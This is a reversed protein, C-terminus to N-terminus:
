EYTVSLQVPASGSREVRLEVNAPYADLDVLAPSEATITEDDVVVFPVPSLQFEVWQADLFGTGHLTLTTGGTRPMVTPSVSVLTLPNVTRHPQDPSPNVVPYQPERNVVPAVPDHNVVPGSPERNVVPPPEKTDAAIYEGSCAALLASLSILIAIKM